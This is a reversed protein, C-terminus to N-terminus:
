SALIDKLNFNTYSQYLTPIREPWVLRTPDKSGTYMYPVPRRVLGVLPREADYPPAVHAM